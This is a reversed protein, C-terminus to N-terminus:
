KERPMAEYSYIVGDDNGDCLREVSTIIKVEYGLSNSDCIGHNLSEAKVLYPVNTRSLLHHYTFRNFM